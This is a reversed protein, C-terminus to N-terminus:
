SLDSWPVILLSWLAIEPIIRLHHEQQASHADVWRGFWGCLRM